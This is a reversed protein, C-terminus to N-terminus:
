RDHEHQTQCSKLVFVAPGHTPRMFYCNYYNLVLEGSTTVELCSEKFAFIYEREMLTGGAFEM